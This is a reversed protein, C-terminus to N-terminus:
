HRASVARPTAAVALASCAGRWARRARADHIRPWLPSAAGRARARSRVRRDGRAHRRARAPRTGAALAPRPGSLAGRAWDPSGSHRRRAAARARRRHATRARRAGDRVSFVRVRLRPLARAHRAPACDSRAGPPTGSASCTGGTGQNWHSQGARRGSPAPTDHASVLILALTGHAEALTDDLQVAQRGHAIPASSCIARRSSTPARRSTRPSSRTRWDTIPSRTVRMSRWPMSSTPSRGRCSGHRRANRRAALRGDGRPVSRPQRNRTPATAAATPGQGLGLESAFQSAVEDQLAFIGDLRGDVKADAVAEGSIVDVVRATIRVRDGNTQFSGIVALRVQLAAAVDQM